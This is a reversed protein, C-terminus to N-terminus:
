VKCGPCSNVNKRGDFCAPHFIHKCDLEKVDDADEFKKGCIDCKYYFMHTVVKSQDVVVTIRTSVRMADRQERGVTFAFDAYCMIIMTDILYAGIILVWMVSVSGAFNRFLFVLATVFCMLGYIHWLVSVGIYISFLCEKYRNYPLTWCNAIVPIFRWFITGILWIMGPMQDATHGVYIWVFLLLFLACLSFVLTLIRRRNLITHILPDQEIDTNIM